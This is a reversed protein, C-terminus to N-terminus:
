TGAHQIKRCVNKWEGIRGALNLSGLYAEDARFILTDGVDKPNIEHEIADAVHVVTLVGFDQVLCERPAHHYAIAEVIDDPLGWLALLYAGVEAHTGGLVRKEMEELTTNEDRALRIVDAYRGALNSVFVLKGIDHMFGIMLANESHARDFNEHAMLARTFVGTLMSHEWLRDLNFQKLHLESFKSFVATGLVLAKIAEIGLFTVAERVDTIRRRFNFYASNVVQLIKATMAVDQAIIKAISEASSDASALETMLEAFLTPISPLTKLKSVLEKLPEDALLKRLACARDITAKLRDTDCPKALFQHTIALSKFLTAKDLQGSLVIRVTDPFKQAVEVLLDYGTMSPMRMDTVVVDYREHRMLALAEDGSAAFDMEWVRRMDHLMRRLGQLINPEDDVFLVKRKDM